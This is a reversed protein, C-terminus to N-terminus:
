PMSCKMLANLVDWRQDRSLALCIRGVIGLVRRKLHLEIKGNIAIDELYHRRNVIVIWMEFHTHFVCLLKLCSITLYLNNNLCVM